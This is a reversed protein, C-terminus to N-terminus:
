IEGLIGTIDNVNKGVFFAARNNALVHDIISGM